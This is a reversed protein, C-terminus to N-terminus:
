EPLSHQIQLLHYKVVNWRPGRRTRTEEDGDEEEEEEEEEEEQAEQNGEIPIASDGERGESPRVSSSSSSGQVADIQRLIFRRLRERADASLPEKRRVMSFKM